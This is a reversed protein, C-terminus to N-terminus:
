QRVILGEAAGARLVDYTTEIVTNDDLRIVAPELSAIVGGIWQQGDRYRIRTGV